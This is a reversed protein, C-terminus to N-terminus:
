YREYITEKFSKQSKSVKDTLNLFAAQASREIALDIQLNLKKIFTSIYPKMENAEAEAKKYSRGVDIADIALSALGFSAFGAAISAATLGWGVYDTRNQIESIKLLDDIPCTVELRPILLDFQELTCKDYREGELLVNLYETRGSNISYICDSVAQSIIASVETDKVKEQFIKAFKESIETQREPLEEDLMNEIIEQYSQSLYQYVQGICYEKYSSVIDRENACYKKLNNEIIPLMEKRKIYYVSDISAILNTEDFAYHLKHLNYYDCSTLDSLFTNRFAPELFAQEDPHSRYYDGLDILSMEALKNLIQYERERLLNKFGSSLVLDKKACQYYSQLQGYSELDYSRDYLLYGALQARYEPYSFYSHILEKVDDKKIGDHIIMSAESPTFKSEKTVGCSFLLLTLINVTGVLILNYLKSM